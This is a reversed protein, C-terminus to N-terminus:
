LLYHDTELERKLAPLYGPVFRGKVGNMRFLWDAGRQAALLMEKQLGSLKDVPVTPARAAPPAPAQAAPAPQTPPPPPSPPSAPTGKEQGQTGALTVAVALLVLFGILRFRM